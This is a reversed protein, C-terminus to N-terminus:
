PAPTADGLSTIGQSDIKDAKALKEAAEASVSIQKLIAAPAAQTEKLATKGIPQQSTCGQQIVLQLFIFATLLSRSRCM